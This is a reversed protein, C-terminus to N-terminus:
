AYKYVNNNHSNVIIQKNQSGATSELDLSLHVDREATAEESDGDERSSM